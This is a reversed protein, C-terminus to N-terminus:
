SGAKSGIGATTGARVGFGGRQISTMSGGSVPMGKAIPTGAPVSRSGITAPVQQGRAPVARASGTDIWMFFFGGASTRGEDDFDGCRDDDVREQTVEDVCIGGHTADPEDLSGCGSALLAAAVLPM